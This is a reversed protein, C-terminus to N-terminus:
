VKAKRANIMKYVLLGIVYSVLLVAWMIAAIHKKDSGLASGSIVSIVIGPIRGILNILVWNPFPLKTFGAAYTIPDKPTGPILFILLLILTLHKPNKMFELENIEDFSIFYETFRQGLARVALFVIASGLTTAILCLATGVPVGFAYGAAISFPGGPIFAFIVQTINLLVFVAMGAFGKSAIQERFAEPEKVTSLLPIAILATLAIFVATSVIMTILQKKTMKLKFKKKESM